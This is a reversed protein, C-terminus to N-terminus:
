GDNAGESPLEASLPPLPLSVLRSWADAVTKVIGVLGFPHRNEVGQGPERKGASGRANLVLMLM